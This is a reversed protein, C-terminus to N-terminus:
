AVRDHPRWACEGGRRARELRRHRHDGAIQLLQRGLGLHTFARELLDANEEWLVKPAKLAATRRRLRHGLVDFSADVGARHQTDEELRETAEDIAGAAREIGGDVHRM